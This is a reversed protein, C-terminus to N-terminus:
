GLKHEVVDLQMKVEFVFNRGCCETDSAGEPLNDPHCELFNMFPRGETMQTIAPDTIYKEFVAQCHPCTITVTRIDM